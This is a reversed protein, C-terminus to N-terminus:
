IFVREIFFDCEWNELIKKIRKTQDYVCLEYERHLRDTTYYETAMKNQRVYVMNSIRDLSLSTHGVTILCVSYGNGGQM